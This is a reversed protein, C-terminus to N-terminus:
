QHLLVMENRHIMPSWNSMPTRAHARALEKSVNIGRAEDMSHERSRERSMQLILEFFSITKEARSCVTDSQNIEKHAVLGLDRPSLLLLTHYAHGIAFALHLFLRTHLIIASPRHICAFIHGATVCSFPHDGVRRDEECVARSDTQCRHHDKTYDTM